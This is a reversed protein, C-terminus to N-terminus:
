DKARRVRKELLSRVDLRGRRKQEFLFASLLLLGLSVAAIFLRNATIAGALEEIIARSGVTNHRITLGWGPEGGVLAKTSLDLLFSWLFQVAIAVPTDTLLTLVFGVATVTLISPLLWWLIYIVFGLPDIALSQEGAFGALQALPLLSLLLVPALMMGVAAFYRACLLSLSSKGRSYLLERAGARRDAMLVAVPVFAGFLAIVIGLYDCFLRGYAGTIRDKCIFDEYATLAEEYTLPVSGYSALGEPAYYSGGGLLKDVEEMRQRFVDYPVLTPINYKTYDSAGGYMLPKEEEQLQRIIEIRTASLEEQSLGTIETLIERIRAMVDEDPRIERYFSLPYTSFFGAAYENQLSFVAAPMVQEPIEALKYGYNGDEQPKTLPSSLGQRADALDRDMDPQFQTFYFLALVAAFLLYVLSGLLRRCEILFLRV